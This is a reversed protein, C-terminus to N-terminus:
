RFMLAGLVNSYDDTWATGTVNPDSPNWQTDHLLGGLDEPRRAMVVWQSPEKGVRAEAPTVDPDSDFTLWWTRMGRWVRFCRACISIGIRFTFPWCAMRRCNESIYSSPKALLCTFRSQTLASRTWFSLIM